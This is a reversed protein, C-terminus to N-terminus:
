HGGGRGLPIKKLTLAVPIMVLAAVGVVFFCDIFALMAAQRGTERALLGLSAADARTPDIGAWRLGQGVKALWMGYAPDYPTLHGVLVSQHYQSRWTILTTVTAIGVSGGLNRSLNLLASANNNKEKPLRAYAMNNIPIFLFAMGAAQFCRALAVHGQSMQLNFGTMHILSSGLVTYGIIILWKPQVRSVLKGVIPLMVLVVLGGPSIVMGAQMATYGMLTQLLLPILMTSSYLTFGILFIMANASAFNSDKLLRLEVVPYAHRLEWLIFCVLAVASVISFTVILPSAFWDELQGKDLVVQLFGLGVAILGLGIYDIRFGETFKRRKAHPPDEVLQASLFLSLLGVPLNIYFAWRWTMNDTIWGGLTPGIIPAMIMAIGAVAFAMGRKAPPFADVLIAQESPMLGGGGIGQLIRFFILSELNPAMGCLASSVTFLAVCTMYFRKRGMLSSFWGSVPLIIANSVLYSTLVWTSEEYSASLNGAIHPLAVNVITSDLVEMFTAMTVVFAILWPSFRPKWAAEAPREGTVHARM